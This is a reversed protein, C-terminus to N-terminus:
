RRMPAQLATGMMADVGLIVYLGPESLTNSFTSVLRWFSGVALTGIVLTPGILGIPMGLWFNVATAILKTESICFLIFMRLNGLLAESVTDYGIGLIQPVALGLLM